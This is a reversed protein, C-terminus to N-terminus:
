PTLLYTFKIYSSLFIPFNSFTIKQVPGEEQLFSNVPGRAWLPQSVSSQLSWRGPVTRHLYLLYCCVWELPRILCNHITIRLNVLQNTQAHNPTHFAVRLIHWMCPWLTQFSLVFTSTLLVAYKSAFLQSSKFLFIDWKKQCIFSSKM